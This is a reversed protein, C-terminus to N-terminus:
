TIEVIQFSAVRLQHPKVITHAVTEDVSQSHVLVYSSGAFYLTVLHYTLRVRDLDKAVRCTVLLTNSHGETSADGPRIPPVIPTPPPFGNHPINLDVISEITLAVM